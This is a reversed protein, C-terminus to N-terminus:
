HNVSERRFLEPPVFFVESENELSFKKGSKPCVAKLSRIAAVQPPVSPGHFLQAISRKRDLSEDVHLRLLAPHDRGCDKCHASIKYTPMYFKERSNSEYQKTQWCHLVAHLNM